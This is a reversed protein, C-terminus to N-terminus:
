RTGNRASMVEHVVDVLRAPTFPKPVFRTVNEPVSDFDNGSMLIIPQAPHRSRILGALDLGTLGNMRFDTVVIDPKEAFYTVLGEHVGAALYVTHNHSTLAAHTIKRVAPDDDVVLVRYQEDM